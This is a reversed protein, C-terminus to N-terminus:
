FAQQLQWWMFKIRGHVSWETAPLNTTIEMWHRQAEYDGYKPAVGAGPYQDVIKAVCSTDLRIVCVCNGSYPHLSVLFRALLALAFVFAFAFGTGPQVPSMNDAGFEESHRGLRDALEPFSFLLM